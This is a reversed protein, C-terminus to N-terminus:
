ITIANPQEIGLEGLDMTLGSAPQPKGLNSKKRWEVCEIAMYDLFEQFEKAGGADDSDIFSEHFAGNGKSFSPARGKVEAPANKSDTRVLAVVSFGSMYVGTGKGLEIRVQALRHQNIPENRYTMIKNGSPVSFLISGFVEDRFRNPKKTTGPADKPAEAARNGAM